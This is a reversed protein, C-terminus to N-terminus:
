LVLLETYELEGTVPNVRYGMNELAVVGLVPSDGEEAMVVEVIAESEGYGIRAFSVQREVIEGGITKFKKKGIQELIKRPIWPLTAGTDVLLEIGEKLFKIPNELVVRVYTLGM